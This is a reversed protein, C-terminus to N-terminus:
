VIRASLACRSRRDARLRRARKPPDLLSLMCWCRVYLTRLQARVGLATCAGRARRGATCQSRPLGPPCRYEVRRAPALSRIPEQATQGRRHGPARRDPLRPRERDRGRRNSSRSNPGPPAPAACRARTANTCDDLSCARHAGLGALAPRDSSGEGFETQASRASREPASTVRGPKAHAREFTDRTAYSEAVRAHAARRSPAQTRSRGNPDGSALRSSAPCLPWQGGDRQARGAEVCNQKDTCCLVTLQAGAASVRPPENSGSGSEFAMGAGYAACIPAVNGGVDRGGHLSGM